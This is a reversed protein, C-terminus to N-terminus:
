TNLSVIPTASQYAHVSIRQKHRGVQRILKRPESINAVLMEDGSEIGGDGLMGGLNGGDGRIGLGSGPFVRHLRQLPRALRQTPHMRHESVQVARVRRLSQIGDGGIDRRFKCSVAIGDVLVRVQVGPDLSDRGRGAVLFTGTQM